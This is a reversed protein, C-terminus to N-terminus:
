ACNLKERDVSRTTHYFRLFILPLNISLFSAIAVRFGTSAIWFSAFAMLVVSGYGDLAGAQDTVV